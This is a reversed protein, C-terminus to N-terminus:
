GFDNINQAYSTALNIGFLGSLIRFLIFGLTEPFFNSIVVATTSILAFTLVLPKRGYRDALQRPFIAFLAGFGAFGFIILVEDDVWDFSLQMSPIALTTFVISFLGFFTRISAYIILFTHYNTWEKAELENEASM